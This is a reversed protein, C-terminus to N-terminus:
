KYVIRELFLLLRPLAGSLLASSRRIVHVSARVIHNCIMAIMGFDAISIAIETGRQLKYQFGSTGNCDMTCDPAFIAIQIAIQLADIRKLKVCAHAWSHM